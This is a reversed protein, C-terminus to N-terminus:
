ESRRQNQNQPRQGEGGTGIVALAEEDLIAAVLAMTILALTAGGSCLERRSRNDEGREGGVDSVGGTLHRRIRALNKRIGVEGIDM